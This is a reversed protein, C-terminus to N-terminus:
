IHKKSRCTTTARSTLSIPFPSVMDTVQQLPTKLSKLDEIIRQMRGLVKQFGEPDFPSTEGSETEMQELFESDRELKLLTENVVFKYKSFRWCIQDHLEDQWSRSSKLM